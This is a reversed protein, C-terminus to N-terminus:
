SKRELEYRSSIFRIKGCTLCIDRMPVFMPEYGEILWKHHRRIKCWLKGM